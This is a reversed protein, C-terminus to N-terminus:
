RLGKARKAREAADFRLGDDVHIPTGFLFLRLEGHDELRTDAAYLLYRPM